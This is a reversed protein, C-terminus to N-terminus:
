PPARYLQLAPVITARPSAAPSRLTDRSSTAGVEQSFVEGIPSLSAAGLRTRRFQPSRSRGLQGAWTLIETHIHCNTPPVLTAAAAGEGPRQPHHDGRRRGPGDRQQDPRPRHGPRGGCLRGRRQDAHACRGRRLRRRQARAGVMEALQCHVDRASRRISATSPSIARPPTSPSATRPSRWRRPRATSPRSGAGELALRDVASAEDGQRARDAHRRRHLRAPVGGRRRWPQGSGIVGVKKDTVEYGDCIPCYRILGARWRRTTCHRTWRRVATPSAPRWCCRARRSAARAGNPKSCGGDEDRELRTVCGDVIKAGYRQAQEKMRAILEKGSIGDPYGAHNRTCPITARAGQRQRGGSHRPPLPRPLDGRDARGPRRRDGPLRPSTTWPSGWHRAKRMPERQALVRAGHGEAGGDQRKVRLHERSREAGAQGPAPQRRCRSGPPACCGRGHSRCADCPRRCAPPPRPPSPAASRRAPPPARRPRPRGGSAPSSGARREASGPGPAGFQGLALPRDDEAAAELAEVLPDELRAGPRVRRSRRNHGRRRRARRSPAARRKREAAERSLPRPRWRLPPSSRSPAERIDASYGVQRIPLACSGRLAATPPDHSSRQM